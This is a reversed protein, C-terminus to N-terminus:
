KLLLSAQVFIRMELFNLPLNNKDHHLQRGGNM